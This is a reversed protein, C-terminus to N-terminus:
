PSKPVSAAVAPTDRKAAGSRVWFLSARFALAPAAFSSRSCISDPRVPDNSANFLATSPALIAKPSASAGSIFPRASVIVFIADASIPNMSSLLSKTFANPRLAAPSNATPAAKVARPTAARVVDLTVPTALDANAARASVNKFSLAVAVPAPTPIWFVPALKSRAVTLALPALLTKETRFIVSAPNDLANLIKLKLM